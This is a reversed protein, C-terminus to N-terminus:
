YLQKNQLEKDTEETNTKSIDIYKMCRKQNQQTQESM